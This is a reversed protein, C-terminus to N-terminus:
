KAVVDDLDSVLCFGTLKTMDDDEYVAALKEGTQREVIGGIIGVMGVLDKGKYNLVQINPHNALKENCPFRHLALAQITEPDSQVAENLVDVAQRAMHERICDAVNSIVDSVNSQGSEKETMLGQKYYTKAM